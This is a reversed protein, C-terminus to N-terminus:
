LGRPGALTSSHRDRKEACGLGGVTWGGHRLGTFGRTNDSAFFDQFVTPIRPEFNASEGFIGFEFYCEWSVGGETRVVSGQGAAHEHCVSPSSDEEDQAGHRGCGSGILDIGRHKCGAGVM